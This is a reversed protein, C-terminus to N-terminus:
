PPPHREIVDLSNWNQDYVQYCLHQDPIWTSNGLNTLTVQQSGSSPGPAWSEILQTGAASPNDGLDDL